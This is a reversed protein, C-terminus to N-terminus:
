TIQNNLFFPEKLLSKDFEKFNIRVDKSFYDKVVKETFEIKKSYRIERSKDQKVPKIDLISKDKIREVISHFASKVTSMTYEFPNSKINSMAHYLMPGDDLGKSLMHITAGVLHFNGDYLAWFNCDTGRYYPSVGMHINIAKKKILFKVLEGKLFSSGFVIYIDSKFFTNLVEKNQKQSTFEKFSEEIVSFKEEQLPFYTSLQTKLHSSEMQDIVPSIISILNM